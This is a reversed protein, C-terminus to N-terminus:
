MQAPKSIRRVIVVMWVASLGVLAYIIKTIIGDSFIATVLNWGFVALGWNLGGIIVLIISTWDLWSFKAM